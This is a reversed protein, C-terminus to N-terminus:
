PEGLLIDITQIISEAMASEYGIVVDRITRGQDIIVLTPFGFDTAGYNEVAQTGETRLTPCPFHFQDAVIKADAPQVDINMGFFAVPRGNFHKAVKTVEPFADVCAPCGRFWFDLVVVKGRQQDLSHTQGDLDRLSWTPAPTGLLAQRRATSQKQQAIMQDAIQTLDTLREVLLPLRIRNRAATIAARTRDIAPDVASTPAEELDIIRDQVALYAPIEARAQETWVPDVRETSILKQRAVTRVALNEGAESTSTRRSNLGRARDFEFRTTTNVEIKAEARPRRTAEFVWLDSGPPNPVSQWRTPNGSDAGTEWGLRAAEQDSPLRPFAVALLGDLLELTRPSAEIQGDDHIVASTLSTPNAGSGIRLSEELWNTLDSWSPKQLPVQTPLSGDATGPWSVGMRYPRDEILVQWRGPELQDLVWVTLDTRVGSLRGNTRSTAYSEFRLKQGVELRYRPLEAAGPLDDARTIPNGLALFVVVWGYSTRM